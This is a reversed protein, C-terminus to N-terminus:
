RLFSKDSSLSQLGVTQRSIATISLCKNVGSLIRLHFHCKRIHDSHSMLLSKNLSKFFDLALSMSNVGMVLSLQDRYTRCSQPWNLDFFSHKLASFKRYRSKPLLNRHDIHRFRQNLFFKWSLKRIRCYSFNKVLLTTEFLLHDFHNKILM